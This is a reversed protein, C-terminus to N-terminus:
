VPDSIDALYMQTLDQIVRHIALNEFALDERNALSAAALTLALPHGQAVRNIRTARSEPIGFATLLDTADQGSLPDLEVSEFLGQWGPAGAWSPGPAERDSVILRVSSPLRPIFSQRLWSDLLRLVEYHDLALVVRSGIAALSRVADELSHVTRGIKGGLARLFGDETPEVSRC